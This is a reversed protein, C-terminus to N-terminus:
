SSSPSCKTAFVFISILQTTVLQDADKNECICFCTKRKVHSMNAMTVQEGAGQDETKDAKSKDPTEGKEAM